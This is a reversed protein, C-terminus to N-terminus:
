RNWRCTLLSEDTLCCLFGASIMDAPIGVSGSKLGSQPKARSRGSPADLETWYDCAPHEIGYHPSAIGQLVPLRSSLGGGACCQQCFQFHHYPSDSPHQYQLSLIRNRLRNVGYVTHLSAGGAFTLSTFLPSLLARFRSMTPYILSTKSFTLPILPHLIDVPKFSRRLYRNVFRTVPIYQPM